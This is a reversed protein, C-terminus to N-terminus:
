LILERLKAHRFIRPKFNAVERDLAAFEEILKLRQAWQADPQSKAKRPMSSFIGGERTHPPRLLFFKAYAPGEPMFNHGSGPDSNKKSLDGSLKQLLASGYDNALSQGRM